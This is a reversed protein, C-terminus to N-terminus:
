FKRIEGGKKQLLAQGSIPLLANSRVPFLTTKKQFVHFLCFCRIAQRFSVTPCPIRQVRSAALSLNKEELM